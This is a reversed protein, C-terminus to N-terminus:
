QLMSHSDGTVWFSPLPAEPKAIERPYIQSGCVIATASLVCATATM